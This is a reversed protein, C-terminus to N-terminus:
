TKEKQDGAKIGKRLAHFRKRMITRGQKKHHPQGGRSCGRGNYDSRELAGLTGGRPFLM